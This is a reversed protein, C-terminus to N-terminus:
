HHLKEGLPGTDDDTRLSVLAIGCIFMWLAIIGNIHVILHIDPMIGSYRVILVLAGFLAIIFEIVGVPHPMVDTKMMVISTIFFWVLLCGVGLIDGLYIGFLSHVAKLVIILSPQEAQPLTPIYTALHWNISPIMMLSITLGIAATTAFYMGVRMNAEYRDIFAYYAGVASPIILLPLVSYFSLVNRVSQSAAVTEFLGHQKLTYLTPQGKILGDIILTIGIFLVSFIIMSWGGILVMKNHKQIM